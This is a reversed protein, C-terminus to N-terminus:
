QIERRRREREYAELELTLQLKNNEFEELIRRIGDTQVQAMDYFDDSLEERITIIHQSGFEVEWLFLTPIYTSM